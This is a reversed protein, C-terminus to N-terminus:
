MFFYMKIFQLFMESSLNLYNETRDGFSTSEINGGYVLVDRLKL